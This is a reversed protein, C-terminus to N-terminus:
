VHARGIQLAGASSGSAIARLWAPFGDATAAILSVLDGWRPRGADDSVQAIDILSAGDLTCVGVRERPDDSMTFTAFRM